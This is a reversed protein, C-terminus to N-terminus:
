KQRDLLWCMLDFRPESSFLDRCDRIYEQQVQRAQARATTIMPLVIAFAGVVGMLIILYKENFSLPIGACLLAVVSFMLSLITLARAGVSELASLRGQHFGALEQQGRWLTRRAALDRGVFSGTQYPQSM